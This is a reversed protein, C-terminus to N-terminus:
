KRKLYNAVRDKTSIENNTSVVGNTEVIAIAKSLWHVAYQMPFVLAINDALCAKAQELSLIEMAKKLESADSILPNKQIM